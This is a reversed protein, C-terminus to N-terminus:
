LRDQILPVSKGPQYKRLKKKFLRDSKLICKTYVKCFIYMFFIPFFLSLNMKFENASAKFNTKKELPTQM